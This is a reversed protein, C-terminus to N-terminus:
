ENIGVIKTESGVQNNDTIKCIETGDLEIELKMKKARFPPFSQHYDECILKNGVLKYKCGYEEIITNQQLTNIYAKKGVYNPEKDLEPYKDFFEKAFIPLCRKLHFVLDPVVKEQYATIEEREFVTKPKSTLLQHLIGKDSLDIFDEKHVFGVPSGFFPVEVRYKRGSPVVVYFGDSCYEYEKKTEEIEYYGTNLYVYDGMTAIIPAIPRKLNDYFRDNKWESIFKSYKGAYKTFGQVRSVKGYKCDTFAFSSTVRLCQKKAYLSCESCKDCCIIEARVPYKREGSGYLNVNIKNDEM